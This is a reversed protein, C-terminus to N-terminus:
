QSGTSSSVDVHIPSSSSLRQRPPSTVKECCQTRNQLQSCTLNEAQDQSTIFHVKDPDNYNQLLFRIANLQKPVVEGANGVSKSLSLVTEKCHAITQEQKRGGNAMFNHDDKYRKQNPKPNPNPNNTLIFIKNLIKQIFELGLTASTWISKVPTSL